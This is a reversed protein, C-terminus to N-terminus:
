TTLEMFDWVTFDTPTAYPHHEGCDGCL